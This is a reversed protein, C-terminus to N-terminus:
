AVIWAVQGLCYDESGPHTGGRNGIKLIGSKNIELFMHAGDTNSTSMPANLMEIPRDHTDVTCLTKEGWSGTIKPQVNVAAIRFPGMRLLVASGELGGTPLWEKVAYTDLNWKSNKYYMIQGPATTTPLCDVANMKTWKGSSNVGYVKKADSTSVSPIGNILGWVGNNDVQMMKGADAKTVVPMGGIKSVDITKVGSGDHILMKGTDPKVSLEPLDGFKRTQIAISAM